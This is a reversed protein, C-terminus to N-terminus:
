SMRSTPWAPCSSTTPVEPSAGSRTRRTSPASPAASTWTLSGDRTTQSDCVVSDTSSVASVTLASRWRKGARSSGGLSSM